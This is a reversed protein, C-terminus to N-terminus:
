NNSNYHYSLYGKSRDGEHPSNLNYYKIIIIGSGGRGGTGNVSTDGDIDFGGGGGGGTSKGGNAGTSALIDNFSNASRTDGNNYGLGGYAIETTITSSRIAGAGGGGLGGIPM